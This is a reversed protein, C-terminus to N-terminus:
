KRRNSRMRRSSRKKRRSRGGRRNTLKMANLLEKRSFHTQIPHQPPAPLAARPPVPFAARPPPPQYSYPTQHETFVRGADILARFSSARTRAEVGNSLRFVFTDESGVTASRLITAMQVEVFSAGDTNRIFFTIGNLSEDPLHTNPNGNFLHLLGAPGMTRYDVGGYIGGTQLLESLKIFQPEPPPPQYSYPTPQETFVRGSDILKQFSTGRTVAISNHLLNFVYTDEINANTSRSIHSLQAPIYGGSPNLIYFVTGYMTEDPLHTDVRGVFPIPAAPGGHRYDLGGYIGGAGLLNGMKIPEPAEPAPAEPKNQRNKPKKEALEKMANTAWRRANSM